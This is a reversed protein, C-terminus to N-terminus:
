HNAIREQYFKFLREAFLKNSKPGPHNNDAAFDIALEQKNEESANGKQIIHEKHMGLSFDCFFDKDILNVFPNIVPNDKFEDLVNTEICSFIYKIKNQKCFFQLLLINKVLNIFGLENTYYSYYDRAKEYGQNAVWLGISRHKEKEIYETRTKFTFLAIILDPKINSCQTLLQRVMYDNSTGGVAFNLLNIDHVSIKERLAYLKKFQYPWSEELNLSAGFTYSCGCVFIKMKANPNYEEGRYGLSNFKYIKKVKDENWWGIQTTNPKFPGETFCPLTM